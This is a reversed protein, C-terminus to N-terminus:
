TNEYVETIKFQKINEKGAFNLLEERNEFYYPRTGESFNKLNHNYFGRGHINEIAYKIETM